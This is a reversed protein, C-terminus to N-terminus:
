GLKSESRRDDSRKDCRYAVETYHKWPYDQADQSLADWADECKPGQAELSDLEIVEVRDQPVGYTSTLKGEKIVILIRQENVM